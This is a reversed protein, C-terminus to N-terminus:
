LEGLCDRHRFVNGNGVEVEDDIIHLDSHCVGCCLTKLLLGEDPCTPISVSVMELPEFAAKIRACQMM